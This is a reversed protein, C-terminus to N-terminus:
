FTILRRKTAEYITQAITHCGLKLRATKLYDRVTFESIGLIEAVTACDKGKATWYLSETERPSLAPGEETGYVAKIAKRHLIDAVKELTQAESAIKKRWSDEDLNTTVSFMAKRQNKDVVPVSFGTRGAGCAFADAFFKGHINANLDLDSWFFPQDKKFGQLIVPDIDHYQKELYRGLWSHPYTSKLFPMDTPSNTRFALHFVVHQYQGIDRILELAVSIDQEDIVKLALEARFAGKQISM